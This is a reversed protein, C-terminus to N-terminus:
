VHIMKPISSVAWSTPASIMVMEPFLDQWTNALIVWCSLQFSGSLGLGMSREAKAKAQLQCRGKGIMFWMCWKGCFVCAFCILTVSRRRPRWVGSMSGDARPGKCKGKGGDPIEEGKVKGYSATSWETPEPLRALSIENGSPTLKREGWENDLVRSGVQNINEVVSTM